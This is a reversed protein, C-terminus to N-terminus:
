EFVGVFDIAQERQGNLLLVILFINLLLQLIVALLGVHRSEARAHHWHAQYLALIAFGHLHVHHVLQEALFDILVHALVLYLHKALRHGVLLLLLRNVELGVARVLEHEVDGHRGLELGLQAFGVGNVVVVDLHAVLYHVALHIHEGRAGAM